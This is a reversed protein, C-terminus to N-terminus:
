EEELFYVCGRVNGTETCCVCVGYVVCNYMSVNFCVSLSLSLFVTNSFCYCVSVIGNTKM